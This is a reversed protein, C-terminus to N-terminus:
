MQQGMNGGQQIYQIAVCVSPRMLVRVETM